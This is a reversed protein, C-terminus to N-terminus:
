IVGANYSYLTSDTHGSLCSCDHMDEPWNLASDVSVTIVTIAILLSLHLNIKDFSFVFM